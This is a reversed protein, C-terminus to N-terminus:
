DTGDLLKKPDGYKAEPSVSVAPKPDSELAITLGTDPSFAWEAVFEKGNPLKEVAPPGVFSPVNYM